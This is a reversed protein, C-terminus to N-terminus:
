VSKPVAKIYRDYGITNKGFDIQKQRQALKHEDTEKEAPIWKEPDPSNSLLASNLSSSSRPHM